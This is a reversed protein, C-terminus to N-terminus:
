KELCYWLPYDNGLCMSNVVHSDSASIKTHHFKTHKAAVSTASLQKHYVSAQFINENRELIMRSGMRSTAGLNWQKYMSMCFFLCRQKWLPSAQKWLPSAGNEKQLQVFTNRSENFVTFIQCSAKRQPLYHPEINNSALPHLCSQLKLSKSSRGQKKM